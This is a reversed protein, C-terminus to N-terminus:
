ANQSDYRVDGDVIVYDIGSLRYVKMGYRTQFTFQDADRNFRIDWGEFEKVNGMGSLFAVEIKSPM